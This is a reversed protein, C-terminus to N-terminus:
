ASKIVIALDIDVSDNFSQGTVGGTLFTLPQGTVGGILFNHAQGTLGILFSRPQETDGTFLPGSKSPSTSFEYDFFLKQLIYFTDISAQRIKLHAETM